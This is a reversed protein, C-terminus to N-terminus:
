STCSYGAAKIQSCTCSPGICYFPKVYLLFRGARTAIALWVEYRGACITKTSIFAMMFGELSHTSLTTSSLITANGPRHIELFTGCSSTSEFDNGCIVTYGNM